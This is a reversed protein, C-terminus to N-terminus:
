GLGFFRLIVPLLELFLARWDFSAQIGEGDDTVAGMEKLQREVDSVMLATAFPRLAM